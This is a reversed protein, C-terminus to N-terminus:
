FMFEVNWLIRFILILNNEYNILIRVNLNFCTTSHQHVSLDIKPENSGGHRSDKESSSLIYQFGANVHQSFSLFLTNTTKFNSENSTNSFADLTLSKWHSIKPAHIISDKSDKTEM